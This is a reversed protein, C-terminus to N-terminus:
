IYYHSLPRLLAVRSALGLLDFILVLTYSQLTETSLCFYPRTPDEIEQNNVASLAVDTVLGSGLVKPRLNPKWLM